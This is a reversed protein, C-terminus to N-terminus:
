SFSTTRDFREASNLTWIEHLIWPSVRCIRTTPSRAEWSSRLCVFTSFHSFWASASKQSRQRHSNGCLLDTQDSQISWYATIQCHDLGTSDLRPHNNFFLCGATVIRSTQKSLSPSSSCLNGNRRWENSYSHTRQNANGATSRSTSAHQRLECCTRRRDESLDAALLDVRDVFDWRNWKEDNRLLSRGSQRLTRLLFWGRAYKETWQRRWWRSKFRRSTDEVRLVDYVFWKANVYQLPNMSPHIDRSIIQCWMWGGDLSTNSRRQTVDCSIMSICWSREVDLRIWDSSTIRKAFRCFCEMLLGSSTGSSFIKSSCESARPGILRDFLM